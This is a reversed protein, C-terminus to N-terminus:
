KRKAKGRRRPRRQAKLALSLFRDREDCLDLVAQYEDRRAEAWARVGGRGSPCELREASAAQEITM